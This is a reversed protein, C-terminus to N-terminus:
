VEEGPNFGLQAPEPELRIGFRADVALQIRRALRVVDSASAHDNNVIALAHQDSLAAGGRLPRYGKRFGAQEILWAAPLKVTGNVAAFRPPEVASRAAVEAYERESVVPNKFFSGASRVQGALMGKGRRIELVAERVAALKPTGDPFRRRLEPYSLEPEDGPRLQFRVATILFRGRDFQNFRSCRYGFGCEGAKFEVWAGREVDWARVSAIVAGVEQGYAGVNQVPTAGTLGPIGSLCEIGAWGREVAAAVVDDWLEGAGAELVGAGAERIGRLAMKLVLGGYGHDSVLLNSGGGLVFVPREHARAWALAEAVDAEQKLEGYYRARGGIGFTTSEALGVNERIEVKL